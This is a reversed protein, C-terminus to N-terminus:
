RITLLLRYTSIHFMAIQASQIYRSDPQATKGHYAVITPPLFLLIPNGQNTPSIILSNSKEIRCLHVARIGTLLPYALCKSRKTVFYFDTRLKTEPHFLLLGCGQIAPRVM